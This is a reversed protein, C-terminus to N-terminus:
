GRIEEMKELLTEALGQWTFKELQRTWDVKQYSRQRFAQAAALMAEQLQRIHGEKASTQIEDLGQLAPMPIVRIHEDKWLEEGLFSRLAPLDTVVLDLGAALAEIAGLGLGEYYSPYIFIDFDEMERGLHAQSEHHPLLTLRGDGQSLDEVWAKAEDPTNGTLTLSLDLEHPLGLFAEVLEYTGKPHSFRGAYLFRVTTGADAKRPTFHFIRPDFGAGGVFIHEQPIGYVASLDPVQDATLASVCPLSSLDGVYRDFFVPNQKAQRLDTGHALALIPLSFSQALDTLMWLHHCLLLDPQLDSIAQTLVQRFATKWQDVMAPTMKHYVTASYPMIDSMGPVPFPLDPTEFYVPYTPCPLDPIPHGLNTGYVLAQTHGLQDLSRILNRAFTGSGTMDPIQALTSLIRM